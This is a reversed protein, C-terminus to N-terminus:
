GASALHRPDGLATMRNRIACGLVVASGAQSSEPRSLGEGIISTDRFCTNEM